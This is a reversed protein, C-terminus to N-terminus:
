IKGALLNFQLRHPASIKLMRDPRDHIGALRDIRTKHKPISTHGISVFRYTYNELFDQKNWFTKGIERCYAIFCRAGALQQIITKESTKTAKMEICIITKKNGSDAVIVFDARKCEGQSGAFVTDPSKFADAKIVIANGPLGYITVSSSPHQLETLTVHWKEKSVDLSLKAVDKIMRHLIDLDPM